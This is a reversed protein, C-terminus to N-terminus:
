TLLTLLYFLGTLSESRQIIYTVSETQLPHVTWLLAMTLALGTAVHGYHTLLRKGLLTRRVLGFLTLAALLHILLNALHYGWVHFGGWAYNLALTFIAVPRGAMGGYSPANFPTGTLPWLHRVHPNQLISPHDDFLFVGSFSNHYAVFGAALLCVVSVVTHRWQKM